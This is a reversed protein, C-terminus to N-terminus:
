ARRRRPPMMWISSAGAETAPSDARQRRRRLRHRKSATLVIVALCCLAFLGSAAALFHDGLNIAAYAGTSVHCGTWMAWTSYSIAAAGNEDHAVRYIQPLYSVLRVGTFVSFALLTVEALTM